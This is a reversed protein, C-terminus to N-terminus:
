ESVYGLMYNDLKKFEVTFKREFNPKKIWATLSGNDAYPFSEIRIHDKFSVEKRGNWKYIAEKACWCIYLHEIRKQDDIFELETEDMFKDDVKVIKEKILEIDIGAPENSVMVAAYDYSHSMSIHYPFNILHPKGHIDPRCDIYEDTNLMKRLLVRSALWHINRKGNILTNLVDQEHEQLKLSALLSEAPEEIKWIAYESHENIKERYSIPM